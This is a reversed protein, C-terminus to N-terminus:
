CHALSLLEPFWCDTFLLVEERRFIRLVVAKSLIIGAQNVANEAIRIWQRRREHEVARFQHAVTGTIIADIWDGELTGM